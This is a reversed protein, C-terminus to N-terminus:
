KPVKLPLSQIFNFGSSTVECNFGCDFDDCFFTINKAIKGDYEIDYTVGGGCDPCRHKRYAYLVDEFWDTKVEQTESM